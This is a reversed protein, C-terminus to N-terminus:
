PRQPGFLLIFASSAYIRDFCHFLNM